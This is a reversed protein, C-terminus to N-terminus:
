PWVLALGSFHPVVQFAGAWLVSLVAFARGAWERGDPSPGVPVGAARATILAPILAFLIMKSFWDPWGGMLYYFLGPPQHPSIPHTLWYNLSRGSGGAFNM